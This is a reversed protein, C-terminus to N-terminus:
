EIATELPSTCSYLQQSYVVVLPTHVGRPIYRPLRPLPTVTQAAHPPKRRFNQDTNDSGYPAEHPNTGDIQALLLVAM